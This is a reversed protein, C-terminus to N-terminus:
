YNSVYERSLPAGDRLSLKEDTPLPTNIDKCNKM